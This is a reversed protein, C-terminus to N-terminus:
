QCLLDWYLTIRASFVLHFIQHWFINTVLHVIVVCLVHGPVQTASRWLM